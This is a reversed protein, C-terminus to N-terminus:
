RKPQKEPESLKLFTERLKTRKEDSKDNIWLECSSPKKDMKLKRKGITGRRSILLNVKQGPKYKKLIDKFNGPLVRTGDIAIWEDGVSLDSDRIAKSFNVKHLVLRGKEEKVRFGPELSPSSASREIGILSLYREFPIKKSNTIYTDFEQKLDVSTAKKACQYFEAKTFGRKKKLYYFDHLETMVDLMSKAGKTEALIHLHMCLSLIAGKTYYSIGTNQFNPDNPRNYYKTWATFSSEELSMWSEGESDELETIDKWLKHIYQQPTYIGSLLMFYADFFSTIGEAIWLEKTLNPKQYDFPGLAIPRIRKVNWHHFYEHSLLEILNRYNEPSSMGLPDFQNISSNMHELGGYSNDSMDLVFLYRKNQTGKMLSIQKSVVQQLDKLIRQKDQSSVEGLVVFEFKCDVVDFHLAKENTLLIPCDFLEDTSKALWALKSGEKKELGTYCYKFPSLSRWTVEWKTDPMEKPYLFTAPPHLLILESTFYNTRVTHEFGHVIYSIKFTEGKSNVKWTDLDVQEITHDSKANELRIKHISKAYDRIKYSGPSWTPISLYTEKKKPHVEM